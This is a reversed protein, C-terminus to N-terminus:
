RTDAAQDLIFSQEDLTQVRERVARWIPWKANESSGEVYFQVRLYHNYFTKASAWRGHNLVRELDLGLNICKSSSAGRISHPSWEKKLGCDNMTLKLDNRIRDLSLAKPKNKHTLFLQHAM